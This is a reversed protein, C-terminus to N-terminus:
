RLMKRLEPSVSPIYQSFPNQHWDNQMERRPIPNGRRGNWIDVPPVRLSWANSDFKFVSPWHFFSSFRNPVGFWSLSRIGLSWIFRGGDCIYNMNKMYIGQDMVQSGMASKAMSNQELTRHQWSGLEMIRYAKWFFTILASQCDWISWPINLYIMKWVHLDHLMQSDFM